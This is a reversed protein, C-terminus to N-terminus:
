SNRIVLLLYFALLKGFLYIVYTYLILRMALTGLFGAFTYLPRLTSM